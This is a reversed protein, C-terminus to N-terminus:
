PLSVFWNKTEFDVFEGGGRGTDGFMVVTSINRDFIDKYTITFMRDVISLKSIQDIEEDSLYLEDHSGEDIDLNSFNLGRGCFVGKVNLAVGRGKNFVRFSLYKKNDRGGSGIPGTIEVRLEPLRSDKRSKEAEKAIKYTLLAYLGTILVLAVTSIAQIAGTNQNLFNLLPM